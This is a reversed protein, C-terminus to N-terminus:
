TIAQQALATGESKGAAKAAGAHRARWVHAEDHELRLIKAMAAIGPLHGLVDLLALAEGGPGIARVGQGDSIVLAHLARRAFLWRAGPAGGQQVEVREIPVVLCADAEITPHLLYNTM